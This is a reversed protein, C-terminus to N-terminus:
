YPIVSGRDPDCALSWAAGEESDQHLKGDRTAANTHSAALTRVTIAINRTLRRQHHCDKGKPGQWKGERDGLSGGKCSSQTAVPRGALSSRHVWPHLLRARCQYSCRRAAALILKVEFSRRCCGERIVPCSPTSPSALDPRYLRGRSAVLHATRSQHSTLSLM